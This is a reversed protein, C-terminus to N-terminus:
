CRDFIQPVVSFHMRRSPFQLNVTIILYAIHPIFINYGIGDLSIMILSLILCFGPQQNM